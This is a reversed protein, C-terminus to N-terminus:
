EYNRSGNTKKNNISKKRCLNYGTIPNVKYNWFDDPMKQGQVIIKKKNM